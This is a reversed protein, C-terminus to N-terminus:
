DVHPDPASIEFALYPRDGGDIRRVPLGWARTVGPLLDSPLIWVATETPLVRHVIEHLLDLGRVLRWLDTGEFPNPPM